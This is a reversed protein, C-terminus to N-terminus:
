VFWCNNVVACNGIISQKDSLHGILRGLRTAHKNLINFCKNDVVYQSPVVQSEWYIMGCEYMGWKKFVSRALGNLHMCKLVNEPDNDLALVKNFEVPTLECKDLLKDTNNLPGYALASLVVDRVLQTLNCHKKHPRFSDSNYELMAYQYNNIPDKAHTDLIPNFDVVVAGIEKDDSTSNDHKREQLDVVEDKNMGRQMSIGTSNEPTYTVDYVELMAAVQDGNHKILLERARADDVVVQRQLKAVDDDTLVYQGKVTTDTNDTNDTDDGNDSRANNTDSKTNIYSNLKNTNADSVTRIDSNGGNEDDEGNNLSPDFILDNLMQLATRDGGLLVERMKSPPVVVETNEEEITHPSEVNNELSSETQATM